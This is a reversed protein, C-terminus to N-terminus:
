VLQILEGLIERGKYLCDSMVSYQGFTWSISNGSTSSTSPNGGYMLMPIKIKIRQISEGSEKM